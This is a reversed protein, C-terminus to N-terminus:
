KKARNEKVKRSDSMHGQSVARNMMMALHINFSGSNSLETGERDPIM